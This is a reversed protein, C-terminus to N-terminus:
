MDWKRGLGSDAGFLTRTCCCSIITLFSMRFRHILAPSVVAALCHWKCM